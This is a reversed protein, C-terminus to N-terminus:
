AAGPAVARCDQAIALATASGTELAISWLLVFEPQLTSGILSLAQGGWIFLFRPQWNDTSRVVPNGEGSVSTEHQM